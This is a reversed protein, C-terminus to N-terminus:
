RLPFVVRLVGSVGQIRAIRKGFVLSRIEYARSELFNFFEPELLQLLHKSKQPKESFRRCSM